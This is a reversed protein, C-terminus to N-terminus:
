LGLLEALRSYEGSSLLARFEGLAANGSRALWEKTRQTFRAESIASLFSTRSIVGQHYREVIEVVQEQATIMPILELLVANDVVTRMAGVLRKANAIHETEDLSEDELLFVVRFILDHDADAVEVAETILLPTFWRRLAELTLRRDAFAELQEKLAHRDVVCGQSM